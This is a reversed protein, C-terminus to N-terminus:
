SVVIDDTKAFAEERRIALTARITAKVAQVSQIFYSAHESSIEVQIGRKVPLRSFESFNGAVATGSAIETTLVVPLGWMMPALNSSPAGAIYVGDATTARRYGHWDSNHMVIADANTFGQTAVNEILLDIADAVFQGTTVVDTVGTRGADLIGEVNPATGDGNLCQSSLRQRVGLRMDDNLISVMGPKDEIQEDTVPVFHGIKRITESVETYVFASEALSVLTGEVSEAAEAASNTRTTQRMFVYSSQDTPVVPILDIVAPMQFAAPVIDGTRIAQPAFGAGTSMVTKIERDIWAKVGEADLDIEHTPKDKGLWETAGKMALEALPQYQKGAVPAFGAGGAPEDLWAQATAVAKRGADAAELQARREGLAQLRVNMEALRESKQGDDLGEGFASVNSMDLSKGAEDFARKLVPTIEKVEATVEDLTLLKADKV